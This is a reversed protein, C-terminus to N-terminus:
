VGVFKAKRWAVSSSRPLVAGAISGAGPKAPRRATWLPLSAFSRSILRAFKLPIPPGPCVPPSSCSILTGCPHTTNDAGATQTLGASEAVHTNTEFPQPIEPRLSVTAPPTGESADWHFLLRPPKEGITALLTR